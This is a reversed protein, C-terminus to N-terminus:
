TSKTMSQMKYALYTLMIGDRGMKKLMYFNLELSLMEGSTFHLTLYLSTKYDVMLWLSSQRSLAISKTMICILMYHRAAVCVAIKAM